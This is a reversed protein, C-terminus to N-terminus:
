ARGGLIEAAVARDDFPRKEAGQIQETEHGKGAILVVDGSRAGAIGANIATRRDLDVVWRRNGTDRIGHVIASAITRYATSPPCPHSSGNCVLRVRATAPSVVLFTAVLALVRTCM